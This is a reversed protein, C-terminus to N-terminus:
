PCDYPMYYGGFIWGTITEDTVKIWRDEIGEIIEYNDSGELFRIDQGNYFQGVVNGFKGPKDRVNVKSGDTTYISGTNQDERLQNIWDRFDQHKGRLIAEIFFEMGTFDYDLVMDSYDSSQSILLNEDCDYIFEYDGGMWSNLALVEINVNVKIKNPEGIKTIKYTGGEVGALDGTSYDNYFTYCTFDDAFYFEYKDDVFRFISGANVLPNAGYKVELEANNQAMKAIQKKGLNKASSNNIAKIGFVAGVALAIAGTIISVLIITKKKTWPAKQKVEKPSEKEPSQEKAEDVFSVPEGCGTCFKIGTPLEKGCKTCKM